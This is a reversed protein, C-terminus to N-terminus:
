PQAGYPMIADLIIVALLSVGAGTLFTLLGAVILAKDMDAISM